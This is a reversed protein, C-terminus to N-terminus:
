LCLRPRWHCLWSPLSRFPRAPLPPELWRNQGRQDRSPKLPTSGCRISATCFRDVCIPCASVGRPCSQANQIGRVLDRARDTGDVSSCGGIRRSGLLRAFDARPRRHEVRRLDDGHGHQRLTAPLSATAGPAGSKPDAQRLRDAQPKQRGGRTGASGRCRRPSHM